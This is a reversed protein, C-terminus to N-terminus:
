FSIKLCKNWEYVDAVVCVSTEEGQSGSIISFGENWSGQAELVNLDTQDVNPNTSRCTPSSMMVNWVRVKCRSTRFHHYRVNYSWLISNDQETEVSTKGCSPGMINWQHYNLSPEDEEMGFTQYTFFVDYVDYVCWMQDKGPRVTLIFLLLYM